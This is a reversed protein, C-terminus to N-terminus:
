NPLTIGVQSLVDRAVPPIDIPKSTQNAPSEIPQSYQEINTDQVGGVALWQECAQVLDWDTPTVTPNDSGLSRLQPSTLADISIVDTGNGSTLRQGNNALWRIVVAGSRAQTRYRQTNRPGGLYNTNVQDIVQWMDRAGFAGTVERDSLLSIFQMISNQLETAAFYAIGYGHLSLNAALDRGAKRVQEQSVALPITSRLLREVTIQRAFSSVSSVFRLWLDNFDRNPLNANPDGGPAGFARMYLDRRESETIRTASNKYYQYMFDGAKGKGLPIMGQRFLDVIRDVVQFLHMEELMYSFYIAQVAHLNSSVIEIDAPEELDPLNIELSSPPAGDIVGTQADFAVEIRNSISYDEASVNDSALKRVVAAVSKGSVAAIATDHTLLPTGRFVVDKLVEPVLLDSAIQSDVSVVFKQSLEAFVKDFLDRNDRYEGQAESIRRVFQQQEPDTYGDLQMLGCIGAIEREEPTLAGSPRAQRQSDVFGDIHIATHSAVLDAWKTQKYTSAVAQYFPDVTVASRLEADIRRLEALQDVTLGGTKDKQADVLRLMRQREALDHRTQLDRQSLDVLLIRHTM